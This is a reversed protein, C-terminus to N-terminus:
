NKTTKIGESHFSIKSFELLLYLGLFLTAIFNFISSHITYQIIMYNEENVLNFLPIVTFCTMSLLMGICVVWQMIKKRKVLRKRNRKLKICLKDIGQVVAYSIGLGLIYAFFAAIHRYAWGESWGIYIYVWGAPFIPLIIVLLVRRYIDKM